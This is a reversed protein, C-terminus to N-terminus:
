VELAHGAGLPIRREDGRWVVVAQNEEKWFFLGELFGPWDKGMVPAHLLNNAMVGIISDHTCLVDLRASSSAGELMMDLVVRAQFPLRKSIVGEAVLDWAPAIFAHSIRDDAQAEKQWGAGRAIANATSLCRDAPAALLRGGPMRRGLIAGLEEATRVGEETLPVELSRSPDTIPFRAAHRLLLSVPRDVPTRELDNLLTKPISM